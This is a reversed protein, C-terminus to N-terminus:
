TYLYNFMGLGRSAVDTAILIPAKGNRFELFFFLFFVLCNTTIYDSISAWDPFLLLRVASCGTEKQSARTEM